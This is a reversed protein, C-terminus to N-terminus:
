KKRFESIAAIIAATRMREEEELARPRGTHAAPLEKEPFYKNILRAQVRMLWVLLTLFVFVVAMGLIMFKVSEGVLHIDM